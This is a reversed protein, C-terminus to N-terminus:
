GAGPRGLCIFGFVYRRLGFFGWCVVGVFSLRGLGVVGLMYLLALHLFSMHDEAGLRLRAAM